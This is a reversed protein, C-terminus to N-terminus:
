HYQYTKLDIGAKRSVEFVNKYDGHTNAKVFRVAGFKRLVAEGETDMEMSLLSDLLSNKMGPDMSSRVFLGHSPFEPSKDIIILEKKLRDDKKAMMEYVTNKAVGIDARGDFVEHIVADHGGAFYYERFFTKLDSIGNQRLYALPYIYGCSSAKDVFVIVKDRMDSAKRIGSDKRVLIYGRYTSKGDPTVPRALADVEQREHAIAGTFSGFFAGDLKHSEFKDIIEGYSKFISIKIDVGTKESLYEALISYRKYQKFINREPVVGIVLQEQSPQSYVQVPPLLFLSFVLVCSIM